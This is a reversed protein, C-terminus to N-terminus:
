SLAYILPLWVRAQRYLAPDYLRAIKVRRCLVKEIVIRDPVRVDEKRQRDVPRMDASDLHGQFRRTQPLPKLAVYGIRMLMGLPLARNGAPQGVKRRRRVGEQQVVILAVRQVEARINIKWPTAKRSGSYMIARPNDIGATGRGRWSVGRDYHGE